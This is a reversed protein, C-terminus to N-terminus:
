SYHANIKLEQSINACIHWQSRLVLHSDTNGNWHRLGIGFYNNLLCNKPQKKLHLELYINSKTSLAGYYIVKLIELEFLIEKLQHAFCDKTLDIM